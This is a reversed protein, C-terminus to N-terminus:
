LRVKQLQSGKAVGLLTAAGAALELVSGAGLAYAIRQPRVASRLAVVRAAKDLFVVDIPYSMGITHVSTCPQIWLGEDPHLRESGLLGRARAFFDRAEYIRLSTIQDDVQLRMCPLDKFSM